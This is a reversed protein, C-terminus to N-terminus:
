RNIIGQRRTMVFKDKTIRLRHGAMRCESATMRFRGHTM